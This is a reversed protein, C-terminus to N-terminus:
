MRSLNKLLYNKANVNLEDQTSSTDFTKAVAADICHEPIDLGKFYDRIFQKAAAKAADPREAIKHNAKMLTRASYTYKRNKM